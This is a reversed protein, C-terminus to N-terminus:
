TAHHVRPSERRTGSANHRDPVLPAVDLHPPPLRSNSSNTRRHPLFLLITESENSPKRKNAHSLSSYYFFSVVVLVQYFHPSLAPLAPLAPLSPPSFSYFFFFFVSTSAFRWLEFLRFREKALSEGSEREREGSVFFLWPPRSRCASCRPTCSRAAARLLLLLAAAAPLPLLLLFGHSSGRSAPRVAAVAPHTKGKRQQAGRVGEGGVLSCCCRRRRCAQRSRRGRREVVIM